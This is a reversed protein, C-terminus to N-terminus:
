NLATTRSVSVVAVFLSRFFFFLYRFALPDRAKYVTAWHVLDDVVLRDFM